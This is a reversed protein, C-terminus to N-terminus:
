TPRLRVTLEVDEGAVEDAWTLAGDDLEAGDPAEVVEFGDPVNIRVTLDTPRIVTQTQYVLQYTVEGDPGERYADPTGWRYSRQAVEGSPIRVWGDHVPHGLETDLGAPGDDTEPPVDIFRAGDAAHVSVNVLNDGADLTPNNPGIVYSPVGSTPADNAIAVELESAVAGDELLTVEYDEERSAYYDVKSATGSNLSVSVLDGDPDRLEGTVGARSLARQTADDEAHVLLHGNAALDGLTRVSSVPDADSADGELFSQFATAAVAGLLQKRRDPDEFQQYAENAIYDVASGADLTTFGPVEVPGTLELLAELAFPDVVIMGDVERDETAEWLREMATASAPFHPSRNLTLWSGTGGYRAWREADAEVPPELTGPPLNELDNTAEFEGFELEGDDVELLAISGIFGGTGGLAAPTSAGFLYTRPEDGGLLAPLHTALGAATEAQAAAPDLLELVRERADAVPTLLGDAPTDAVGARAAATADAASRLPAALQEIAPVPLAGDRPALADLGGPLAEIAAVAEIGADVVTSAATALETVVGLDDGVLPLARLPAVLPNGLRDRADDLDDRADGFSAQAAELDADALADRAAPLRDQAAVLDDRASLLLFTAVLAWLVVVIVVALM